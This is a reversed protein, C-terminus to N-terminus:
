WKRKKKFSPFKTFSACLRLVAEWSDMDSSEAIRITKVSQLPLVSKGCEDPLEDHGGRRAM